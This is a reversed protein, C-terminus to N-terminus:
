HRHRCRRHHYRRALRRGRHQGSPQRRTDVWVRRRRRLIGRRRRVRCGARRPLPRRRHHPRRRLLPAPRPMAPQRPRPTAHGGARREPRERGGRDPNPYRHRRRRLNRSRRARAARAERGGLVRRAEVLGGRHDGRVGRRRRRRRRRALASAMRRARLRSAHIRRWGRVTPARSRDARHDDGPAVGLPHAGDRPLRVGRARAGILPPRADGVDRPLVPWGAIM